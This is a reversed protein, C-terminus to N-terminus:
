RASRGMSGAGIGSGQFSSSSTMDGGQFTTITTDLKGIASRNMIGLMEDEGPTDVSQLLNEDHYQMLLEDDPTAWPNNHGAAVPGAVLMAIVSASLAFTRM